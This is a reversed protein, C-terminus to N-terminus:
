GVQDVQGAQAGSLLEGRHQWTWRLVSISFVVTLLVIVAEVVGGTGSLFIDNQLDYLLDMCALYVGASGACLLWFLAEPRRRRMSVLALVCAIGLWLDALPFANEFRYYGQSDESAIVRRDAWWIGWYAVDILVAVVLFVEIVRRM